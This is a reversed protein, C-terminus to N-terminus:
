RRAARVRRVLRFAITGFLLGIGTALFLWIVNSVRASRISLEDSGGLRRGTKDTVVITVEHVGPTDTRAELLVSTSSGAAIDVEGADAITLDEEDSGEAALRVTVSQDLDNSITAPFTGNISSLTVAQPTSVTVDDLRSEIWQRSRDASVRTADPQARAAYSMAALSQDTVTGGVLNNLRLLSQLMEGARRLARAAVFNAGDLEYTQQRAPYRLEDGTRGEVAADETAAAVSSLDVWDVDFGSFFSTSPVPLWDPPLLVVLPSRAPKLFRVAAEALIRQRFAIAARPDGPSPGGDTAGSSTTVVRRGDVAAVAPADALARDSVLVLTDRGVERLADPSLYGSPAAVVPQATVGLVPLPGASRARAFRYASPDHRAAASVDLDGYPLALLEDEEGVVERLRGLWERAAEAAQQTAPDLDDPLPAEAPDEVEPDPTESASPEPPDAPTETGDGGDGQEPSPSPSATETGEGDDEGEQLNPELSRAPNGSALQRVADLLAPDLVYSVTRSGATGALEVLSRLRGGTSLTTTWRELDTLTGDEAYELSGRLPIAVAVSERGERRNPVMPLFTRARGDAADDREEDGRQGLAHVGFWYVGPTDAALLDSDVAFNYPTTEGPAITDITTYNDPTTIRGGVTLSDETAVAAALQAGTNMPDPSVFSYVNVTSWPVSDNNTVTGAVQVPGSAPISSPSLTEITVTLPTSAARRLSQRSPRADRTQAKIRDAQETRGQPGDLDPDDAVAPAAAAVPLVAALATAAVVLAARLSPM